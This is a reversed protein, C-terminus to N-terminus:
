QFFLCYKDMETQFIKCYFVKQEKELVKLLTVEASKALIYSNNWQINNDRM